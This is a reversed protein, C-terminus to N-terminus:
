LKREVIIYKPEFSVRRALRFVSPRVAGRVATCGIQKAWDALLGFGTENLIGRGGMTTIYAVRAKPYDEVLVSAAGLIRDGNVIALLQQSGDSLLRFLDIVDYEGASYQLGDDLFGYVAHWVRNIDAPPIHVLNM